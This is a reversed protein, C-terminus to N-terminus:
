KINTTSKINESKKVCDLNSAYDKGNNILEQVIKELLHRNKIWEQYIPILEKPLSKSSLKGEVRRDWLFYPGHFHEKSKQCRCNQRGCQLYTERITGPIVIGVNAIRKKLNEHKRKKRNM